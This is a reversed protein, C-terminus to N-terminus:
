FRVPILSSEIKSKEYNYKDLLYNISRIAHEDKVSPSVCISKVVNVDKYNCEIYPKFMNNSYNLKILDSEKLLKLFKEESMKIIIRVEKENKYAKNKFALKYFELFMYLKNLIIEKGMQTEIRAWCDSCLKLANKIIEDQIKYDYIVKFPFLEVEDFKNADDTLENILKKHNFGMNYGASNSTKTYYNWLELNDNDSSFCCLFYRFRTEYKINLFTNTYKNKIGFILAHIATIFDDDLELYDGVREKTDLICDWLCDLIVRGESDDNLMSSETFWLARNKLIGELGYPSTYHYWIVNKKYDLRLEEELESNFNEWDYLFKEM